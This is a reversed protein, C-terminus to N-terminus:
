FHGLMSELAQVGLGMHYLELTSHWFLRDLTSHWFLPDMEM